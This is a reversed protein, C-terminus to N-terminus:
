ADGEPLREWFALGRGETVTEVNMAMDILDIAGTEIARPKQRLDRVEGTLRHRYRVVTGPRPRFTKSVPDWRRLLDRLDEDTPALTLGLPELALWTSDQRDAVVLM